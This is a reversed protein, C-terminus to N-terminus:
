APIQNDEPVIGDCEYPGVPEATVPSGGVFM